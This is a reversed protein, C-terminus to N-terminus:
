ESKKRNEKRKGDQADRRKQKVQSMGERGVGIERREPHTEADLHKQLAAIDKEEMKKEEVRHLLDMSSTRSLNFRSCTHHEEM